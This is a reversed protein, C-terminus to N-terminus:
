KLPGMLIGKSKKLNLKTGTVHGFDQICNIAHEISKMNLVFLTSDDAYQAIKHEQGNFTLGIINKNNRINIGLIEAALIFLLASIPCGQRVGRCM